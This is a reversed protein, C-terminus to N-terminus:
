GIAGSDALSMVVVPALAWLYLLLAPSSLGNPIVRLMGRRDPSLLLALAGAIVVVLFLVTFASEMFQDLDTLVRSAPEALPAGYGQTPLMGRLAPALLFAGCVVMLRLAMTTYYLTDAVARGARRVRPEPEPAVTDPAPTGPRYDANTRKVPM